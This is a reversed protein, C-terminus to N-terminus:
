LTVPRVSLSNKPPLRTTGMPTLSLSPSLLSRTANHRNGCSRVFLIERKKRRFRFDCFLFRKKRQGNAETKGKGETQETQGDGM